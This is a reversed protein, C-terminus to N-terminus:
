TGDKGAARKMGALSLEKHCEKAILKKRINAAQRNKRAIKIQRFYPVFYDLLFVMIYRINYLLMYECVLM